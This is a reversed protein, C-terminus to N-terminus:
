SLSKLFTFTGFVEICVMVAFGVLVFTIQLLGPVAKGKERQLIEFVVVYL